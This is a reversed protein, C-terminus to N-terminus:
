IHIQDKLKMKLDTRVSRRGEGHCDYPPTPGNRRLFTDLEVPLAISGQRDIHKREELEKQRGVSRKEGGGGTEEHM